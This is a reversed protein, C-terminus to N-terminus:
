EESIDENFEEHYDKPLCKGEFEMEWHGDTDTPSIDGVSTIVLNNLLFAAYEKGNNLEVLIAGVKRSDNGYQYREYEDTLATGSLEVGDGGFLEHLTGFGEVTLTGSIEASEFASENFRAHQFGNADSGLFNEQEVDGVPPTISLDKITGTITTSSTFQEALSSTLGVTLPTLRYKFSARKAHFTILNSM